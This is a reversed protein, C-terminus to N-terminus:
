ETMVHGTLLTYSFAMHGNKDLNPGINIEGGAVITEVRLYNFDLPLLGGNYEPRQMFDNYFNVMNQKTICFGFWRADSWNQTTFFSSGESTTIYRNKGFSTAGVAWQTGPDVFTFDDFQYNNFILSGITLKKDNRVDKFIYNVGIQNNSGDGIWNSPVTATVGLCLKANPGYSGNWPRIDQVFSHQLNITKLSPQYGSATPASYTHLQAAFTRDKTQLATSGNWSSSVARERNAKVSAANYVGTFSGVEWSPVVNTQGMNFTLITTGPYYPFEPNNVIYNGINDISEQQYLVITESFAATSSLGVLFVATSLVNKAFM